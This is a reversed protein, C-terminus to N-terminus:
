EAYYLYPTSSPTGPSSIRRAEKNEPSAGLILFSVLFAPLSYGSLRTTHMASRISQIVTPAYATPLPKM